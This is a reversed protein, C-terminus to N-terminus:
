KKSVKVNFGSARVKEALETVMEEAGQAVILIRGDLEVESTIPTVSVGKDALQKAYKEARDLETFSGTYIAMKQGLPLMFADGIRAKVKQLQERAEDAPYIGELLRTMAVLGRGKTMEVQFGQERLDKAAKEASAKSLFPGVQAIFVPGVAAPAEQQPVVQPAVAAVPKPKEAATKKEEVAAVPQPGGSKEVLPRFIPYRKPETEQAVGVSQVGSGSFGGNVLYYGGGLLVVLLLLALLTYAVSGQKAPPAVARIEHAAIGQAVSSECRERQEGGQGADGTLLDDQKSM